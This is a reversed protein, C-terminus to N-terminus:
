ARLSGLRSELRHIERRLMRTLRSPGTVSELRRLEEYKDLIERLACSHDLADALENLLRATEGTTETDDPQSM